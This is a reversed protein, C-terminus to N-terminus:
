GGHGMEFPSEASWALRQCWLRRRMHKPLLHNQKRLFSLSFGVFRFVEKEPGHPPPPSPFNFPVNLTEAVARLTITKGCVSCVPSVLQRGNQSEEGPFRTYHGAQARAGEPALCLPLAKM